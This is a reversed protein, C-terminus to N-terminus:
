AHAKERKIKKFDNIKGGAAAERLCSRGTLAHRDRDRSSPGACVSSCCEGYNATFQAADDTVEHRIRPIKITYLRHFQSRLLVNMDCRLPAESPIIQHFQNHNKINGPPSL